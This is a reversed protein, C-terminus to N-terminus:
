AGEALCSRTGNLRVGRYAHVAAFAVFFCIAEGVVAMAVVTALDGGNGASWFAALLTLLRPINSLFLLHTGELSMLAVSPVARVLRIGAGAALLWLVVPAMQYADGYLWAMLTNGTVGVVVTGALSVLGVRSLLTLYCSGFEAHELALRSLRPLESALLYRSGVLAPLLTLQAALAFGALDSASFHLAVVLRDGQLAFFMLGGNMAIPVGYRFCRYLLPGDFGFRYPSRSVIHSLAWFAGAHLLLVWALVTYDRLVWALPVSAIAAILSSGGEVVLAPRYEGHRQRERFSFNSTGRIAIGLAAIAFVTPDLAPHLAQCVTASLLIALSALLVGKIAQVLHVMRRMPLLATEEVQVLLRDLGFEGAMEFIRIALALAVALGMEEAGVLRALFLNRFFASGECLVQTALLASRQSRYRKLM